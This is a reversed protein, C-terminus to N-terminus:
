YQQAQKSYWVAKKSATYLVLNGDDQMGLFSGDGTGATHSYWIATHNSNYLVLNGDSQLSFITGGKGATNASWIAHNDSADYVVLNGDTQFAFYYGGLSSYLLEGPYMSQGSYLTDRNNPTTTAPPTTPTTQNPPASPSVPTTTPSATATPTSSATPSASPSKTPTSSASPSSTSGPLGGAVNTSDAVTCDKYSIYKGTNSSYVFCYNPILPTKGVIQYNGLQGTGTGTSPAAGSAPNNTITITDNVTSVIQVNAKDSTRAPVTDGPKYTVFTSAYLNNAIATDVVAKTNRVDAQVGSQTASKQQALFVPIAIAALIGIILIVVLLEVLTFGEENHSKNIKTNINTFM